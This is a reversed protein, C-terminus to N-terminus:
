DLYLLYTIALLQLTNILVTVRHYLTFMKQNGADTANNALPMFVQRSVVFAVLTVFLIWFMVPEESIFAIVAGAFSLAAFYLYYFPFFQRIFKRAIPMELKIFLLPAFLLQFGVMGGFITALVLSLLFDM